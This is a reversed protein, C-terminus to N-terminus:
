FKQDDLSCEGFPFYSQGGTQSTQIKGFLYFQQENLVLLAALDLCIFLLDATCHYKGKRLLNTNEPEVNLVNLSLNPYVM